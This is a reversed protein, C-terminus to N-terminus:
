HLLENLETRHPGLTEFIDGISTHMWLPRENPAHLYAARTIRLSRPQDRPWRREVALAALDGDWRHNRQLLAALHDPGALTPVSATTAAAAPPSSTTSAM